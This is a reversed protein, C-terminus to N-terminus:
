QNSLWFHLERTSLDAKFYKDQWTDNTVLGAWAQDGQKQVTFRWRYHDYVDMVHVAYAAAVASNGRLILLNEDNSYSAKFGLNHSGTIVACDPSFPDVVVIKDHIIAHAEPSSKLLEKQWFSFQDRIESASVVTAADEGPRHYLQVDYNQAAKPDTVAGRVFLSANAEQRALAEDMVSPSGPQFLLFLIGRKAGDIVEFAEAMDSPTEANQSPKTQQRTNPSFWVDIRGGDVQATHVQNNTQRFRASQVDGEAKLRNWYDLYFAALEPSEIILSNNSQACLGTYTWNTSGTLVAQPQNNKDVYVVYKNHGIHDGALMRDSVDTGASHLSQRSAQNTSDDKGTNSLVIHVSPNGVLLKVLDPDNLEYLACYCQGGESKARELLLPLAELMQGALSARLPDGSQDIHQELTKYDPEGSPGAPIQHALSQTSLIGRNFYTAVHGHNPTLDIRNTTLTRDTLPKLAGPQGVMPVIDYRYSSGRKATLDRWNFKQVPWVETTQAKWDANSQGQFGVWAPLVERQSAVLDTRYIAFGLCGPIKQTVEWALFAVDNNSFAVAKDM